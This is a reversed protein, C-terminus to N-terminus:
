EASRKRTTHTNISLVFILVATLFGSFVCQLWLASSRAEWSLLALWGRTSHIWRTGELFGKLVLLEMSLWPHTLHSFEPFHAPIGRARLGELLLGFVTVWACVLLLGFVAAWRQWPALPSKGRGPNLSALIKQDFSPGLRYLPLSKLSRDILQLNKFDVACAACTGLHATVQGAEGPGLHGDLLEHLKEGFEQCGM